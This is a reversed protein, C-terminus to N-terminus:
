LLQDTFKQASQKWTYNDTMYQKANNGIKKIEDRNKTAWIMKEILEEEKPSDWSGFIGSNPFFYPDYVEVKILDKLLISNSDNVYETIGSNNSVIVPLGLGMSEVIPLGIGEAMSPFIGCNHVALLDSIDEVSDLVKINDISHELRLDKLFINPNFNPIHPNNILLTLTVKKSGQFAKNFSRILLETGKRKEAKGIHIFKFVDSQLKPEILYKNLFKTSVGGPIVYIPVSVGNNRLVCRGWESATCIADLANINDIFIKPILTYEFIYYGINKSFAGLTEDYINPYWFCLAPNNINPRGSYSPAGNAMKQFLPITQVKVGISELGNIFERSHNPIGVNKGYPQCFFNIEKM